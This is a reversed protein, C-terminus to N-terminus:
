ESQDIVDSLHVSKFNQDVMANKRLKKVFKKAQRAPRDKLIFMNPLFNGVDKLYKDLMKHFESFKVLFKLGKENQVFVYAVHPPFLTPKGVQWTISMGFENTVRDVIPVIPEVRVQKKYFEELDTISRQYKCVENLKEFRFRYKGKMGNEEIYTSRVQDFLVLVEVLNFQKVDGYAEHYIDLEFTKCVRQVITLIEKALFTPILVPMELYFNVNSFQPNIKYINSVRSKKTIFYRYSFGFVADEYLIEVVDDDYFIRFEDFQDFYELVKEFDLKDLNSNRFFHLNIAM